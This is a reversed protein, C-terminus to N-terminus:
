LIFFSGRFRLVSKTVVEVVVVRAVVVRRVEAELAEVEVPVVLGQLVLLHDVGAPVIATM